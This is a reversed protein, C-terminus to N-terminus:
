CKGSDSIRCKGSDTKKLKVSDWIKIEGKYEFQIEESDPM